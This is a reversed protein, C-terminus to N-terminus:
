QNGNTRKGDSAPLAGVRGDGLFTVRDWLLTERERADAATGHTGRVSNLFTYLACRLREGRLEVDGEVAGVDAEAKVDDVRGRLADLHVEGGALRVVEDDDVGDAAFHPAPGGVADESLRHAVLKQALAVRDVGALLPRRGLRALEGRDRLERAGVVRDLLADGEFPFLGAFPIRCVPISAPCVGPKKM